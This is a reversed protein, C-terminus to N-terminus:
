SSRRKRLSCVCNKTGPSWGICPRTTSNPVEPPGPDTGILDAGPSARVAEHKSGQSAAAGTQFVNASHVDARGSYSRRCRPGRSWPSTAYICRVSNPFAETKEGLQRYAMALLSGSSAASACSQPSTWPMSQQAIPAVGPRRGASFIAKPRNATSFRDAPLYTMPSAGQDVCQFRKRYGRNPRLKGSCTGFRLKPVLIIESHSEISRQPPLQCRQLRRRPRGNEHASRSKQTRWPLGTRRGSFSSVTWFM